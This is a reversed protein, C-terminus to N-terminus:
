TLLLGDHTLGGVSSSTEWQIRTGRPHEGLELIGMGVGLLRLKLVLPMCPTETDGEKERGGNGNPLAGRRIGEDLCSTVEDSPDRKGLELRFLMVESWEMDVHESM